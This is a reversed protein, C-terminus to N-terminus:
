GNDGEEKVIASVSVNLAVAIKGISRPTCRGRALIASVNQRAIGCREALEAQSMGREALFIRVKHSDIYM